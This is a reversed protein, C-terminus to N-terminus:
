GLCERNSFGQTRTEVPHYTKDEQEQSERVCLLVRDLAKQVSFKSKTLQEVETLTVGAITEFQSFM